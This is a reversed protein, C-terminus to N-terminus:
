VNVNSVEWERGRVRFELPNPLGLFASGAFDIAEGDANVGSVFVAPPQLCGLLRARAEVSAQNGSYQNPVTEQFDQLSQVPTGLPRLCFFFRNDCRYHDPLCDNTEFKDCCGRNEGCSACWNSPNSYSLIRARM